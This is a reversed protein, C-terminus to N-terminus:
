KTLSKIAQYGGIAAAGIGIKPGYKKLVSTGISAAKKADIIKQVDFLKAMKTKYLDYIIQEEEALTEKITKKIATHLAENAKSLKDDTRKMESRWAMRAEELGKNTGEKVKNMFNDIAKTTVDKREFESAYTTTKDQNLAEKLRARVTKENIAKKSKEFMALTKEKYQLGLKEAAVRDKELNGTLIDGFEDTLQRVKPPMEYTKETIFGGKTPQKMIEKKSLYQLGSGALKKLEAPNLTLANKIAKAKSVGKALLSGPILIEAATEAYGGIKQPLNTPQLKKDIPAFVEGTKKQVTPSLGTVGLPPFSGAAQKTLGVATRGLGKLVGIGADTIPSREQPQDDFGELQHGQELLSTIVDEPSHEGSLDSITQKVQDKTLYAM